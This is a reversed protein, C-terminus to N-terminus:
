NSAFRKELDRIKLDYVKLYKEIQFNFEERLCSCTECTQRQNANNLQFIFSILVLEFLISTIKRMM